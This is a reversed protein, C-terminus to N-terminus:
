SGGSPLETGVARAGLRAPVAHGDRERSAEAPNSQGPHSTAAPRRAYEDHWAVAAAALLLAPLTAAPMEWDWDLCAHFAWASIGGALGAAARSNIRFLQVVAATVGGLFLALLVVGVIGLEAATELYLSHADGSRDVRDHQMLWEVYFGGSGIGRLPEHGFSELAVEWYRYRNTDISALRAPNAGRAPSVNSPKGELLAVATIASVIVVAAVSLVAVARSVPLRPVPLPRRAARPALLGAALALGVLAAFMVLGETPDGIEGRDLSKVTPLFSAVLSALAAAGLVVVVARLQERGAPALALLVLLGLALAGLAGRAFTLYLGLGLPVAAAACAARLRRPRDPDGALHVALIMGVAAVIGYANWYTIPQELRGAASESRSLEVLGPLLRESLGYAVVALTGLVVGPELWARTAPGRMCMVGAAFFALYLLLRQLDDEARGAIPAWSASLATWACLALLGGLAVRGATTRPLPHPSALAGVVLLAWALLGAILRARDFYGGTFFALVTPGGILALVAIALLVRRM